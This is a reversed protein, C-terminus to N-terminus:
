RRLSELILEARNTWSYQLVHNAAGATLTSALVPDALVRVLARALGIPDGPPALVGSEGDRLIERIAMVSTAVIPTRAAMSEFVKLPSTFRSFFEGDDPLPVATVDCARLWYPVEQRPQHDEFRLSERQVGNKEALRLYEGVKDLPGGVCLLLPALGPVAAIHKMAVILDPIGKERDFTSFKGIYGIIHRDLPLGLRVRCERRTEAIDYMGIDVGSRAVLIREPSVGLRALDQLIGDTTAVVTLARNLILPMAHM